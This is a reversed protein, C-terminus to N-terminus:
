AGQILRIERPRMWGPLPELGRTEKESCRGQFEFFDSEKVALIWNKKKKKKQIADNLSCFSDLGRGLTEGGLGRCGKM